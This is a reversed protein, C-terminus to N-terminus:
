FRGGQVKFAESAWEQWGVIVHGPKAPAVGRGLAALSLIGELEVPDEATRRWRCMRGVGGGVIIGPVGENLIDAAILCHNWGRRSATM